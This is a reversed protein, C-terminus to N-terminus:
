KAWKFEKQLYQLTLKVCEKFTIGVGEGVVASGPFSPVKLQKNLDKEMQEM